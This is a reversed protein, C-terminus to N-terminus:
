GLISLIIFLILTQSDFFISFDQAFIFTLLALVGILMMLSYHYIFGSQMKPVVNFSNSYVVSPIGKPGLLEFVGKDLNRYTYFLSINLMSQNLYDNYVKDFFWKRNLFTFLKVGINTLKFRYTLYIFNSYISYALLAGSITVFLPLLKPLQPIFHADIASSNKPFIFISNAFFDSGVGIILDHFIYGSFISGISLLFLPILMQLSGEHSNEIVKKQSNVGIIFTLYVLRISYFATCFAAFIGLFFSFHGIVSYKAFAIELIVDKSYFGSLFPFGTLAVSGIMIMAYSFPTIKLLGGIKRIDQEDALAHIVCGASLFLLAKFFAHNALHFMAAAYSSLGCAFIMYGLQSCTSYAIVRKLDNQVLGVTAAFFCTMAGFFAVIFLATSSYEFLFSSRAILFVGATVLTAAHLLASVPTPAEMADPLWTHLGLQASKGVSGVFLFVCILTLAHIEFGFFYFTADKYLPVLSFITTYDFSRFLSFISLMGLALGFDGVRNVLMAKIAAKNAQVRSFWFSILLYSALGIGEWGLFMQLYNNATVLILMFGTFLSLYAMFRPIHPDNEMYSGSYLHVCFSVSSVVCLMVVTLSDFLFGWNITFLGSEIWDTLVFVCSSKGLGVEYFAVSSLIFTLFLCSSTIIVSGQSGILFGFLLSSLSGLFPLTVLLLYM